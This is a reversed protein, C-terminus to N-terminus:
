GGARAAPRGTLSQRLLKLANHSRSKVTGAPIGLLDATEAVTRGRLYIQVLVSRHEDSLRDLAQLAVMSDVVRQAHDHQVPISAPSAAVEAPRAARARARDTIINRAVTFLWGRVSGTAESLSGAHRWARILTEQLVDEAAARDGTLRTAYGLLAAGHEEYLTRVLVEAQSVQRRRSWVPAM